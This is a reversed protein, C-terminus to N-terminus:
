NKYIHEMVLAHHLAEKIKVSVSFGNYEAVGDWEAVMMRSGYFKDGTEDRIFRSVTSMASSTSSYTYFDTYQVTGAIETNIDAAYPAVVSCHTPPSAMNSCPIEGMSIYGKASVQFDLLIIYVIYESRVVTCICQNNFTYAM